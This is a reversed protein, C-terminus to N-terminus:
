LPRQQSKDETRREWGWMSILFFIYIRLGSEECFVPLNGNELNQCKWASIEIPHIRLHSLLTDRKLNWINLLLHTVNPGRLAIKARPRRSATRFAPLMSLALRSANLSSHAQKRTVFLLEKERLFLIYMDLLVDNIILSGVRGFYTLMIPENDCKIWRHSSCHRLGQLM